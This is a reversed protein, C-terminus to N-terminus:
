SRNLHAIVEADSFAERFDYVACFDELTDDATKSMMGEEIMAFVIRGFDETRYINWHSLVVPALLGYQEIAFDRLGICLDQGSVHREDDDLAEPDEHIRQATYSLGQRVFEFAEIPFPGARDLMKKMRAWDFSTSSQSM